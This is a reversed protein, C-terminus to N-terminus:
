TDRHSRSNSSLGAIVPDRNCRVLTYQEEYRLDHGDMFLNYVSSLKWNLFSCNKALDLFDLSQASAYSYVSYLCVLLNVCINRFLAM